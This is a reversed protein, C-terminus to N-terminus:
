DRCDIRDGAPNRTKGGLLGSKQASIDVCAIRLKRVSVAAAIATACTAQPPM